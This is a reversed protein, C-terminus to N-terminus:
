GTGLDLIASIYQQERMRRRPSLNINAMLKRLYLYLVKKVDNSWKLEEALIDVIAPLAEQAAQVNLFALRLRRAIVDIATCAYEKVAYRIQSVCLNKL